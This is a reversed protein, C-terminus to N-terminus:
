LTDGDLTWIPLENMKKYTWGYPTCMAAIYDETSVIVRYGCDTADDDTNTNHNILWRYIVIKPKVKSRLIPYSNNGTNYKDVGVTPQGHLLCCEGDKPPRFEGTYEHYPLDPLDLTVQM